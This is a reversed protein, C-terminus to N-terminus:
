ASDRPPPPVDVAPHDVRIRPVVENEDVFPESDPISAIGAWGVAEAACDRSSMQMAFSKGLLNRTTM